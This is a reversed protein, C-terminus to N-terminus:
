KGRRRRTIAMGLLGTGFIALTFPEPVGPPQCEPLTPDIDCVDQPPTEDCNTDGPLCAKVWVSNGYGQVHIASEINRPDETTGGKPHVSNYSFPNDIDNLANLTTVVYTSNNGQGLEHDNTFFSIRADFYGGGDANYQNPTTWFLDKAIVGSDHSLTLFRNTPDLNFFWDNVYGNTGALGGADFVEMFISATKSGDAWSITARAYTDTDGPLGPVTGSYAGANSFNFVVSGAQAIPASLALLGAITGLTKKVIKMAGGAQNNYSLQHM